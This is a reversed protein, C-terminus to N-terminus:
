SFILSYDLFTLELSQEEVAVKASATQGFLANVAEGVRAVDPSENASGASTATVQMVTMESTTANFSFVGHFHNINNSGDM